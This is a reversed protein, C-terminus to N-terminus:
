LIEFCTYLYKGGNDVNICQSMAAAQVTSDWGNLFDGHFGYGTTDGNAFVFQGDQNQVNNVAYLVEFFLHPLQIPYGPPCVGNDIQSMYAVHSNDTKYLNVGDWCSQFQIQARLGYSCDTRVMNATEPMPGSADLCNFSTRNGLARGYFTNSYTTTTNSHSGSTTANSYPGNSTINLPANVFSGGACTGNGTCTGGAYIVGNQGGYTWATDYSRQGNNGSVMRFGEPFPVINTRNEGRGLYYVTM